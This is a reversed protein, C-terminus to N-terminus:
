THPGCPHLNKLEANSDSLSSSVLAQRLTQALIGTAACEAMALSHPTNPRSEGLPSRVASVMDSMGFSVYHWSDPIDKGPEGPRRFM